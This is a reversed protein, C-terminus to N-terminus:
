TLSMSIPRNRPLTFHFRAGDEYATDLWIEGGHREIILKCIALGMGSGQYNDRPHLRQFIEFIRDAFRPEIGMGQDTFTFRWFRGQAHTSIEIDPSREGAYKIGNSLLHYCVLQLLDAHGWVLPLHQYDVWAGPMEPNDELKDAAHGVVATMDVPAIAEDLRQNLRSYQLLDNIMGRMRKGGTQIIEIVEAAEESVETGFDEMLIQCYTVVRRVPEQLDHSAIYAFRALDRNSRELAATREMLLREAVTNESVDVLVAMSRMHRDEADREAVASLLMDRITGTKTVFQCAVDSCHGSSILAPLVHDEAHRKSTATLFDTAPRGIVEDARYGMATLWRDSVSALRGSADMSQLIAPTREYLQRYAAESM